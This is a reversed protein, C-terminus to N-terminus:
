QENLIHNPNMRLVGILFIFILMGYQIQYLMISVCISIFYIINMIKVNINEKKGKSNRKDM